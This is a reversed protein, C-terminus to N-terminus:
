YVTKVYDDDKVKVDKIGLVATKVFNLAQPTYIKKPYKVFIEKIEERSYNKFLWGMEDLSGYMLIQHVIYNKDKKPDLTGVQKSWLIPQLRKPIAM